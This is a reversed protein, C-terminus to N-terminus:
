TISYGFSFNNFTTTNSYSINLFNLKEREGKLETKLKRERGAREGKRGTSDQVWRSTYGAESPVGVHKLLTLKARIYCQNLAVNLQGGPSSIPIIIKIKSSLHFCQAM